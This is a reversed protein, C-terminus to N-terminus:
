LKGRLNHQWRLFASMAKSLLWCGHAALWLETRLKPDLRGFSCILRHTEPYTAKWEKYLTHNQFGAVLPLKAFFKRFATERQYQQLVGQRQLYQEIMGAIAIDTRIGTLSKTACLSTPSHRYHYLAQTTSALRQAHAYVKVLFLLDEGMNLGDAFTIDNRSILERRVLTSCLSPFIRGDLLRRLNEQMDDTYPQQRVTQRDTYEDLFNCGVVDANRQKAMDYMRELMDPETWDDSDAHIVYEGRAMQLGVSRAHAVGGNHELNVIRVRPPPTAATLEKLLQLSHDTSSDDIFIIEVGDMTQALLSGVCQALHREANFVPVIVSVRPKNM